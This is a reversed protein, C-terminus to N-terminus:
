NGQTVTIPGCSVTACTHTISYHQQTSGSQTLSLNTSGGGLNINAMHAASGQQIVNVTKSGGSLALELLHSGGDRQEVTVNNNGNAVSATIGRSGGTAQQLFNVSNNSGTITLELYNSATANTSTQTTTINNNSGQVNIESFNNRTGSQQVNITNSNGIQQIIVRTDSNPRNNFNNMRTTFQTNPNFPAASGGCCLAPQTSGGASPANSGANPEVPAFPQGNLSTTGQIEDVFLMPSLITDGLNFAAFGLVYDGAEPVTFMAIQWGTSGYSDTSYNGTGPNTFGLLAYRQQNNNLTPIIGANTSHTLSIISGDNFPTYDTSLYNWAFTYTVGPQLTVTRKIFASNTPTPNGGGTQSQQTLFDRIATNEATTLGLSATTTNFATNGSPYIQAMHNGYPRITWTKGGGYTVNVLGTSTAVGGGTTWGSLNGSEFGVNQAHSPAACLCIFCLTWVLLLRM